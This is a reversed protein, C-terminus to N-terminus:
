KKCACFIDQYIMPLVGLKKNGLETSVIYNNNEMFNIIQAIRQERYAKNEVFITPEGYILYNECVKEYLESPM